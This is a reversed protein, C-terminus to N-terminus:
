TLVLWNGDHTVKYDKIAVQVQKTLALELGNIQKQTLTGLHAKWFYERELPDVKLLDSKSAKISTNDRNVQALKMCKILMYENVRSVEQTFRVLNNKARPNCKILEPMIKHRIQARSYHTNWNAPDDWYELSHQNCLDLIEQKTMQILPRYLDVKNDINSLYQIGRLGTLGTGRLMRFLVTELHDDQHQGLAVQTTNLEEAWQVFMKRRFNRAAQETLLGPQKIYKVKPMQSILQGQKDEDDCWAYNVHGIYCDFGQQQLLYLLLVSDAGGSYGVLVPKSLELGTTIM